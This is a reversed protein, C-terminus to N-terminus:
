QSQDNLKVMNATTTSQFPDWGTTKDIVEWRPFMVLTQNWQHPFDQWTCDQNQFYPCTQMVEQEPAPVHFSLIWLIRLKLRWLSEEYMQIEQPTRQQHISHSVCVKPETTVTRRAKLKRGPWTWTCRDVTVAQRKCGYLATRSMTHPMKHKKKKEIHGTVALVQDRCSHNPLRCLSQVKHYFIVICSATNVNM